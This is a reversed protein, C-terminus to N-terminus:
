VNENASRVVGGPLCMLGINAMSRRGSDPSRITPTVSSRLAWCGDCFILAGGVPGHTETTAAVGSRWGM